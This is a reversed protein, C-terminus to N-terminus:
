DNKIPPGTSEEAPPTAEMNEKNEKEQEAVRKAVEPTGLLKNAQEIDWPAKGGTLKIIAESMEMFEEVTPKEWIRKIKFPLPKIEATPDEPDIEIEMEQRMLPEYHQQWLTETMWSQDFAVPGEIFLAASKNATAMNAMDESQVLFQPVFLSKFIKSELSDIVEVIGKFDAELDLPIAEKVDNNVGIYKGPNIADIITQIQAKADTASMGATNVIFMIAKLWASKLIEKIDEETAINHSEAINVIPEIASYGYHETFPTIQVEQYKGYIMSQRDLAQGDVYWGEFEMDNSQDLIVLGGRRANIPFLKKIKKYEPDKYYKIM